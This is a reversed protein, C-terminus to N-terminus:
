KKMAKKVVNKKAKTRKAQAAGRKRIYASTAKEIKDYTSNGKQGSPALAKFILKVDAKSIAHDNKGKLAYKVAKIMADDYVKGGIKVTKGWNAKGKAINTRSHVKMPINAQQVPFVLPGFNCQSTLGM